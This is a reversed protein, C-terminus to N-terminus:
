PPSAPRQSGRQVCPASLGRTDDSRLDQVHVQTAGGCEAHVLGQVLERATLGDVRLEGDGLAGLATAAGRVSVHSASMRALTDTLMGVYGCAELDADRLSVRANQAALVCAGQAGHVVVGEVDAELQRLHLGDGAVGDSTSVRSITADRLRLKGRLAMLGYEATGELRIREVDLDGGVFQLGGYAGSDRVEIDRLLARSLSLGMGARAARTSTFRRVDLRRAQMASVGYEHGTVEVDELILTGEMVSFGAAQGGEATADRVEAHAGDVSVATAPGTFRTKEVVALSGTGRARVARRYPGTFVSTRIRAEAVALPLRDGDSAGPAEPPAASGGPAAPEREQRAQGGELLVGAAAAPAAEFRCDEVELRGAEVRVAGTHQGRFGVRALHVQAGGAVELGWEGGEVVVGSVLVDGGVELVPRDPTEAHLVVGEGQGELRVEPPLVFPGAYRGPLLRVTAAGRRALAEALSRLPRARSGDGAGEGTADM